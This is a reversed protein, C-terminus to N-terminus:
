CAPSQPEALQPLATALPSSGLLCHDSGAAVAAVAFRRDAHKRKLIEHGYQDRLIPQDPANQGQRAPLNPHILLLGCFPRGRAPKGVLLHRTAARSTIEAADARAADILESAQQEAAGRHPHRVRPVRCAGPPVGPLLV